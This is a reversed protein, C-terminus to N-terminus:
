VVDGPICVDTVDEPVTPGHGEVVEEGAVPAHFRPVLHGLAVAARQHALDCLM